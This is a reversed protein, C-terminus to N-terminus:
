DDLEGTRIRSRQIMSNITPIPRAWARNAAHCIM